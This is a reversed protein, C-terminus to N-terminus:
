TYSANEGKGVLMNGIPRDGPGDRRSTWDRRRGCRPARVPKRAYAEPPITARAVGVVARSRLCATVNTRACRLQRALAPHVRALIVGKRMNINKALLTRDEVLYVFLPFM